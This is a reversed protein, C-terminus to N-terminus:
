RCTKRNKILCIQDFRVQEDRLLEKTNLGRYIGWKPRHFRIGDPWLNIDLDKYRLLLDGSAFDRLEIKYKGNPGYTLRESAEVWVGRFLNLPASALNERERYSDRHRIELM